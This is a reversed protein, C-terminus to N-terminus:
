NIKLAAFPSRSAIGESEKLVVRRSAKATRGPYVHCEACRNEGFTSNPMLPVRKSAKLQFFEHSVRPHAGRNLKEYEVLIEGTLACRASHFEFFSLLVARQFNMLYELLLSATPAEFIRNAECHAFNSLM